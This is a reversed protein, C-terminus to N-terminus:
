DSGAPGSSAVSEGDTVESLRALEKGYYDNGPDLESAQRMLAIADERNGRLNAIQAVTDLIRARQTDEAALEVGRRALTEAEELNIEHEFCWWAFNNLGDADSDWGEPLGERKLKLALDRDNRVFLAEDIQLNRRARVLSEDDTGETAELGRAIYSATGAPDQESLADVMWGAVEVVEDPPTRPSALARDVAARLSDLDVEDKRFGILRATALDYEYGADPPGLEIAREFYDAAEVHEKRTLHYFGLKAADAATPASLFRAEKEAITTPDAVAQGLTAVFDEPGEFGWWREITEAEADTLVFTPYGSVGFREALESGEGDGEANVKYFV